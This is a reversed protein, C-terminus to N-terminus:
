ADLGVCAIIAPGVSCGLSRVFVLGPRLSLSPVSGEHGERAAKGVSLESLIHQFLGTESNKRKGRGYVSQWSCWRSKIQEDIM